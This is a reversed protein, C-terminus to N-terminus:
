KYFQLVTVTIQSFNRSRIQAESIDRFIIGTDPSQIRLFSLQESKSCEGNNQKKCGFFGGDPALTDIGVRLKRKSLISALIRRVKSAKSLRSGPATGGV